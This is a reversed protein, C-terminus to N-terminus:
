RSFSPIRGTVLVRTLLAFALMCPDDMGITRDGFMRARGTRIPLNRFRELTEDVAATASAAIESWTSKGNTAAALADM